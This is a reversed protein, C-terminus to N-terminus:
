KLTTAGVSRSYVFHAGQGDTVERELVMGARELVKISAIHDTDVTATVRRYGGHHLGHEIVARAVESGYGHRWTGPDIIFGVEADEGNESGVLYAHGIYRGTSAMTVAWAEIRNEEDTLFRELRRCAEAHELPGDMHRRAEPNGNLAVFLGIDAEDYQRLILRPTRLRRPMPMFGSPEKLRSVHDINTPLFFYGV